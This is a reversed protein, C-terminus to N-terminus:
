AARAAGGVASDKIRDKVPLFSNLKELVVVPTEKRKLMLMGESIIIRSYHDEVALKNYFEALPLFVFNAIGIGWFTAVLAIGMAQGIVEPGSSGLKMMMAMMGTVAGLLGFAPPYKALSQIVKADHMYSTKFFQSRHRLVEDLDSESLLGEGVLQFGENLFPHPGKMNALVLPNTRAASAADGIAKVIAQNSTHNKFLAVKVFLTAIKVLKSIPFSIFAACLTGGVVLIIAHEDLFMQPNPASAFVGFYLVALGIAFGIVTSINM